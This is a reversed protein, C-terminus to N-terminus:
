PGNRDMPSFSGPLDDPTPPYLLQLLNQARAQLRQRTAPSLRDNQALAQLDATPPSPAM